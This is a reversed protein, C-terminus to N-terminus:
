KKSTASSLSIFFYLIYMISYAMSYLLVSQDASENFYGVVIAASTVLLLVTQWILNLKQKGAILLTYGLPSVSFQFFFMISLYRAYYGAQEWEAGFIWEFLIPSFIAILVTPIIAIFSLYKFTRVFTGRCDGISNFEESAKQKFVELTSSAVLKLPFGLVRQTVSFYGVPTLGYFATLLVIPNQSTYVNIIDAPLSYKPFNINEKVIIWGESLDFGKFLGGELQHTKYFLYFTETLQALINAFLFVEPKPSWIGGFVLISNLILSKFIGGLAIKRYLKKRNLWNRFVYFFANLGVLLPVLYIWTLYEKKFLFSFFTLPTLTIFLGLFSLSILIFFVLYGILSKIDEDKSSIVLVNEYRFTVIVSLVNVVSLFITIIGFTEPSYIRTLVPSLLVTLFQTAFVGGAITLINKLYDNKLLKRIM